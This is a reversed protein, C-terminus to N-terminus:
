RKSPRLEESLPGTRALLSAWAQLAPEVGSTSPGERPPLLCALQSGPSKVEEKKGSTGAWMVTM